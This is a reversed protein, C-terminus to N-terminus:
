RSSSPFAGAGTPALGQTAQRLFFRIAEERLSKFAEVRVTPRQFTGGIALHIVRDSLFDNATVMLSAPAATALAFRALLSRALLSDIRDGTAVTADLDLRGALTALGTMYIQLRPSALYFEDVRIVGRKLNAEIRGDGFQTAGSAIGPVYNKIKGLLPLQSAQADHLKASLVGTLDNFSQVNRGAITMTGSLRGRGYDSGAISTFDVRSLRFDADVSWADMYRAIVQGVIRGGALSLQAGGGRVEIRGSKPHWTLDAPVRFNSMAKGGISMRASTAVGHARWLDGPHLRVELDLPGGVPSSRQATALKVLDEIQAGRLAIRFMSSRLDVRDWEGTGALVGGAVQGTISGLRIATQSGAVRVELGPSVQSGEIELTGIQLAGGWRWRREEVRSEVTLSLAGRIDLPMTPDALARSANELQVSKLSLRSTGLLAWGEDPDSPRRSGGMELTGGLLRGNADYRLTRDRQTLKGTLSAVSAGNFRLDPVNFRVAANWDSVNQHSDRPIRFTLEGETRGTLARWGVADHLLEGLELGTWNLQASSEAGDALALAAQGTLQGGYLKASIQSATVTEPRYEYVFDAHDIVYTDLKLARATAAGNAILKLPALTGRLHTNFDVEGSIRHVLSAVAPIGRLRELHTRLVTGHLVLAHPATVGISVSAEIPSGDVLGRIQPVKFLSNQLNFEIRHLQRFHWAYVDIAAVDLNGAAIWKSWDSMTGNPIQLEAAGNSPGSVTVPGLSAGALLQGADVETWSVSASGGVAMGLSVSGSGSAAGGYLRTKISPLEFRDRDIEYEAHLTDLVRGAIILQQGGLEGGGTLNLPQWTGSIAGSIAIVGHAQEFHPSLQPVVRMLALPLRLANFSSRISRVGDLRMQIAIAVPGGALNAKFTPMELLGNHITVKSTQLDTTTVGRYTFESLSASAAIQWKALNALDETPVTATITGSGLGAGRFREDLLESFRLENWRLNANVREPDLQMGVEGTITGGAVAALIQSMQFRDPLLRYDFALQQINLPQVPLSSIDRSFDTAIDAFSAHGEIVMNEPRALAGSASISAQATGASLRSAAENFRANGSLRGLEGVIDRINAGTVEADVRWPQRQQFIIAASGVVDMSSLALRFERASLEGDNLLLQTSATAPSIERLTLQNLRLTGEGQWAAVEPIRDIAVAVSLSGTLQGRLSRMTEWKSGLAALPVDEVDVSATFDGPPTLEMRATGSLEGNQGQSQKPTPIGVHLQGLALVGDRYQLFIHVDQLQFSDISLDPSTLQGSFRWATARNLAGWPVGVELAVTIRGKLTVPLRIGVRELRRTLTVVDVDNFDWGADFYRVSAPPNTIEQAQAAISSVAIFVAPLLQNTGRPM